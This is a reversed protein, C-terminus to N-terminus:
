ISLESWHGNERACTSHLSSLPQATNALLKEVAMLTTQLARDTGTREYPAAIRALMGGVAKICDIRRM